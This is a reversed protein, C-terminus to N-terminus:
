DGNQCWGRLAADTSRPCRPPRERFSSVPISRDRPGASCWQANSHHGNTRLGRMSEFGTRFPISSGDHYIFDFAKAFDLSIVDVPQGEDMMRIVVEEFILLNSLCPRRPLLGQQHLSISLLARKLIREFIECIIVTLSVPHYNSVDEPDGKKTNPM